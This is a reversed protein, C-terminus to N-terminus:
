KRLRGKPQGARDEREQYGAGLWKRLALEFRGVFDVDLVLEVGNVADLNM